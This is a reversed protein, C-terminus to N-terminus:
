LCNWLYVQRNSQEAIGALRVLQKLIEAVGASNIGDLAFEQSQSLKNAVSSIKREDFGALAKQLEAPFLYIWPGDDSVVHAEPLFEQLAAEFTKAFLQAQLQALKVVDIPKLDVGELDRSPLTEARISPLSDMNSVFIEGLPM